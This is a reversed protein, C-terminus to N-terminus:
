VRGAHRGPDGVERLTGNMVYLRTGRKWHSAARGELAKKLAAAVRPAAIGKPEIPGRRGARAIAASGRGRACAFGEPCSDLPVPRAGSGFRDNKHRKIKLDVGGGEVDVRM